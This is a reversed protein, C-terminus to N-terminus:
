TESGWQNSETEIVKKKVRVIGRRLTILISRVQFISGVMRRMGVNMRSQTRDAQAEGVDDVGKGGVGV